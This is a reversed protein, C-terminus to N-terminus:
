FADHLPRGLLPPLTARRTTLAPAASSRSRVAIPSRSRWRNASGVRRSVGTVAPRKTPAGWCCGAFVTGSWRQPLRRHEGGRGRATRTRGRSAGHFDNKFGHLMLHLADSMALSSRRRRTRAAVVLGARRARGRVKAYVDVAFPRMLQPHRRSSCPRKAGLTCSTPDAADPDAVGARRPATTTSCRTVDDSWVIFDDPDDFPQLDRISAPLADVRQSPVVRPGRHDRDGATEPREAGRARRRPPPMLAASIRIVPAASGGPLTSCAPRVDAGIRAALPRNTVFV